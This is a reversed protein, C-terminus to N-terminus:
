ELNQIQERIKEITVKLELSTQTMEIASAKSGLTNAERNLEQVMFDLRKGVNGGEALIRRIENVHTQLRNIEEDVDLKIAYLIVEQRIRDAVEENTLTSNDTM